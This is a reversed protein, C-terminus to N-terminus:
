RGRPDPFDPTRGTAYRDDDGSPPVPADAAAHDGLGVYVKGNGDVSCTFERGNRYDGKVRWEGDVKDVDFIEDIEGSRAAEASCANVARDTERSDLGGSDRGEVRSDNYDYPRDPGDTDAPRGYAQEPARTGDSRYGYSQDSYEGGTYDRGATRDDSREEKDKDIAAAVAAIGGGILLVGLLDGGDFGDHHRRYRGWRHDNFTEDASSWAPAEAPRASLPVTIPVTRTAAVVPSVIMTLSALVAAARLITM